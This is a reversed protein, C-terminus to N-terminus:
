KFVCDKVLQRYLKAAYSEAQGKRRFIKGKVSYKNLLPEYCVQNDIFELISIM